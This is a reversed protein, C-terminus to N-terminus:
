PATAAGAAPMTKSLTSRSGHPQPQMGPCGSAVAPLYLSVAAGTAAKYHIVAGVAGTLYDRHCRQRDHLTCLPLDPPDRNGSIPAESCSRQTTTQLVYVSRDSSGWRVSLHLSWTGNAALQHMNVSVSCPPWFLLKRALAVAHHGCTHGCRQVNQVHLM